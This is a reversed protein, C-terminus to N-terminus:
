ISSQDKVNYCTFVHLADIARTYSVYKMNDGQGYTDTFWDSIVGVNNSEQGKSSHVTELSICKKNKHLEQFEDSELKNIFELLNKKSTIKLRSIINLLCEAMDVHSELEKSRKDQVIIAKLGCLFETWNQASVSNVAKTLGKKIGSGKLVGNYGNLFLCLWISILTSNKPSIIMDINQNIVIGLFEIEDNTDHILVKGGEKFAVMESEIIEDNVFKVIENRCRYTTDLPYAKVNPSLLNFVKEMSNVAGRFGYIGQKTDGVVVVKMEPKTELAQKIFELQYNNLDQVEDIYLVNPLLQPKLAIWNNVLPIRVMDNFDIIDTNNELDQLCNFITLANKIWKKTNKSGFTIYQSDKLEDKLEQISRPMFGKDRITSLVHYMQGRDSFKFNLRCYEWVKNAQIKFSSQFFKLLFSHSTLVDLYGGVEKHIGLKIAKEKNEEQIAKNFSLLVSPEKYQQILEMLMYTKGSGASANILIHQTSNFGEFVAQQQKSLM